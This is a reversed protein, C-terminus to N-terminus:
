KKKGKKKTVFQQVLEGEQFKAGRKIYVCKVIVRRGQKLSSVCHPVGGAKLIIVSNADTELKRLVETAERWMTKCDSTNELTWVIEIQPPDYLIDDVHWQMGAGAKDYTRIEVPVDTSLHYDSGMILQVLSTLSGTQFIEVTRGSPHLGAGMRNTAVSSTTEDVLSFTLQQLDKQIDAYEEKSFVSTRYLIGGAKEFIQKLPSQAAFTEWPAAHHAHSPETDEELALAITRTRLGHRQLRVFGFAQHCLFALVPLRSKM